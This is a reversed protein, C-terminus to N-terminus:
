LKLPFLHFESHSYAVTITIKGGLPRKQYTYQRQRRRTIDKILGNKAGQKEIKGMKNMAWVLACCVAPGKGEGSVTQQSITFYLSM